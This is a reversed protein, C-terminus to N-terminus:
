LLPRFFDMIVSIVDSNYGNYCKSDMIVSIHIIVGNYENHCKSSNQCKYCEPFWLSMNYCFSLMIYMIDMIVSNYGNDCKSSNNCKYCQPM